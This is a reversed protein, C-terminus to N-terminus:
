VEPSTSPSETAPPEMAGTFNTTGNVEAFKNDICERMYVIRTKGEHEAARDQEVCPQLVEKPVWAKASSQLSKNFQFWVSSTM